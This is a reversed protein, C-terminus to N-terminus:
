SIDHETMTRNEEGAGDGGTMDVPAPRLPAIPRSDSIDKGRLAGTRLATGSLYRREGEVESPAPEETPRISPFPHRCTM